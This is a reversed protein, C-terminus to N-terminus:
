YCILHKVTKSYQLNLKPIIACKGKCTIVREAHTSALKGSCNTMVIKGGDEVYQFAFKNILASEVIWMSGKVVGVSFVFFFRLNASGHHHVITAQNRSAADTSTDAAKTM